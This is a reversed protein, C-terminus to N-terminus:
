ADTEKDRAQAADLAREAQRRALRYMLHRYAWNVVFTLVALVFSALALKQNFSLFGFGTAGLTAAYSTGALTRDMDM